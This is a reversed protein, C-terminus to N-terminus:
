ERYVTYVTFDDEKDPGQEGLRTVTHWSYRRGDVLNSDSQNEKWRYIRNGLSDLLLDNM